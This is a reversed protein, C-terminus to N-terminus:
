RQSRQNRKSFLVGWMPHGKQNQTYIQGLRENILDIGTVPVMINAQPLYRLKCHRVTNFRYIKAKIEPL